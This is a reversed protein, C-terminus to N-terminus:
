LGDRWCSQRAPDAHQTLASTGPNCPVPGQRHPIAVRDDGARFANGARRRRQCPPWEALRDGAAGTCPDPVRELVRASRGPKAGEPRAEPGPRAQLHRGDPAASGRWSVGEMAAAPRFRRVPGSRRLVSRRPGRQRSGGPHLWERDAPPPGLRAPPREADM